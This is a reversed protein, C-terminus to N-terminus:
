NNFRFHAVDGDQVIYEKGELRLWGKDRAAAYGGAQLLKDWAIVEAKIFGKEFDTHIVGAAQPAKTGNVITWAKTEMPGATFFTILNLLKYAARALRDLGSEAMGLEKMYEKQEAATLEALEAEIKVDIPLFEAGLNSPHPTLINAVYLTPKMTLLQLQSVLRKEEDTLGVARALQGADLATKVKDLVAKLVLAEKNGSKVDRNLTDLRKNVTNLDALMLELNIVEIDRTPDVSGDVHIIDKNEFFRVVQVIADVGRIHSLFKNGLGAGEAAGKVLGAIDVFRISTPVLKESKELKALKEIREDPVAIVGVNPEITTFPFNSAAVAQKTLANFLTSKGVNPLGVIGVSFSM